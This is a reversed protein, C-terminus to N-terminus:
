DTEHPVRVRLAAPRIKYHLPTEMRTVEGDAAVLLSPKRTEITAEPVCYVEFDAAQELAGFLVRVALRILGLRGTRHTLYLGLKGANLRARRGLNFGAMEYENNGVFLFSTRRVLSKGEVTIRLRLFPFRRLARLTAWFFAWWKGRALQEQQAERQAVIRPYLGLSSNNLFVRGNVEGV